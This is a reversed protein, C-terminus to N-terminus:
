YTTFIDPISHDDHRCIEAAKPTAKKLWSETLTNSSQFKATVGINM